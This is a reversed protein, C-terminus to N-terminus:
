DEDTITGINRNEFYVNVFPLPKKTSKDIVRGTVHTITQAYGFRPFAFLITTLFLIYGIISNRM